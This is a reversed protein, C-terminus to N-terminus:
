EARRKRSARTPPETVQATDIAAVADDTLEFATSSPPPSGSSGAESNNIAVHRRSAPDNHRPHGELMDIIYGLKTEMSTKLSVHDSKLAYSLTDVKDEVSLSGFLQFRTLCM